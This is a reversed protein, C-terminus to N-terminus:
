QAMEGAQKCLRHLDIADYNEVEGTVRMAWVLDLDNEWHPMAGFVDDLADCDDNIAQICEFDKISSAEIAGRQMSIIRHMENLLERYTTM